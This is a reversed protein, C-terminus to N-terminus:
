SSFGPSVSTGPTATMVIPTAPSNVVTGNSSGSSMMPSLYPYVVSDSVISAGTGILFNSVVGKMSRSSKNVVADILAFFAGDSVNYAYQGATSILMGYGSAAINGGYGGPGAAGITYTTALSALAGELGVMGAKKFSRKMRDKKSPFIGPAIYDAAAVTVGLSVARTSMSM